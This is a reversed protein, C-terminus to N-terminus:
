AIVAAGVLHMGYGEPRFRVLGEMNKQVASNESTAKIWEKAADLLGQVFSGVSISLVPLEEDQRTSHIQFKNGRGDPLIFAVRQYRNKPHGFTQGRHLVGGRLAWIDEATLHTFKDGIYKKCWAIYRKDVKYFNDENEVELASCIDPLSLCLAVSAYFM